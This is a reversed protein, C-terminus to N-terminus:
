KIIPPFNDGEKNEFPLNKLRNIHSKDVRLTWITLVLFFLFFVIFSLLPYIEIGAISTLYNVFKM